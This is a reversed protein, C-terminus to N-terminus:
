LKPFFAICEPHNAAAFRVDGSCCDLGYPDVYTGSRCAGPLLKRWRRTGSGGLPLQTYNCNNARREAPDHQAANYAAEGLAICRERKPIDGDQAAQAAAFTAACKPHDPTAFCNMRQLYGTKKVASDLSRCQRKLAAPIGSRPCNDRYFAPTFDFTGARPGGGRFRANMCTNDAEGFCITCISGTECKSPRARSSGPAFAFRTGNDSPNFVVHADCNEPCSIGDDYITLKMERAHAGTLMALFLIVVFGARTM